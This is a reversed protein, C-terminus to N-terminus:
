KTVMKLTVYISSIIGIINRIDLYMYNRKYGLSSVYENMLDDMLVKLNQLNYIDGIIPKKDYKLCIKEM